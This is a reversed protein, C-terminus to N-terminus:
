TPPLPRIAPSDQEVAWEPALAETGVPRYEIWDVVLRRDEILWGSETRRYTDLYRIAMVRNFWEGSHLYHHHALCYTEGSAGDGEIALSQQGLFHTTVAYRSLGGITEAIAARGLREMTAEGSALRDSYKALRGTETFTAAVGDPDVRDCGRAYADVLDRLEMRDLLEKVEPSM